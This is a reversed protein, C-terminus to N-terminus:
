THSSRALTIGFVKRAGSNILAHACANITSGTTIVDDIVLVNKESVRMENASFAGAMNEARESVSLGVQQRTIKKRLLAQSTYPIGTKWSIPRALLAAQNYGREKQRIVDLPVPIILNIEWHYKKLLDVLPEALVEGLGRDQRYKLKHIATQLPEVFAAWSRIATFAVEQDRCRDCIVDDAHQLPDGCIQCIPNSILNTKEFCTPCYREGWSGCGACSPPFLVDLLKWGAKYLRSQM